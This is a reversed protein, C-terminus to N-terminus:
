KADLELASTLAALAEEKVYESGYFGYCSDDEIRDHKACYEEREEIPDGDDDLELAFTELQYGYVEGNCWQSYVECIGAAYERLKARREEGQVNGINELALKDPIWVGAFRVGDWQFEVGPVKNLEGAVGWICNGHEYYSLPVADSNNEIEERVREADGNIHRSNLSFIEGQGDWETMPNSPSDDHVIRLFSIRGNCYTAADQDIDDPINLSIREGCDACLAEDKKGERIKAHEHVCPKLFESYRQQMERYDEASGLDKFGQDNVFYAVQEGQDNLYDCSGVPM